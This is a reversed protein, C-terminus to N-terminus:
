EGIESIFCLARSDEGLGLAERMAPDAAALALGALGAGGSPTTSVGQGALLEVAAAAQDDSVTMFADSDHALVGLAVLSPEKCDLRGQTSVPGQVTVVQGAKTSELLCPAADPEVTVIKVQGGWVQRHYRAVAAALGGVGAQLLVHSPPGVLDEIQWVSEEAMVGYGQMITSPVETYGPWSSDSILVWGNAECDRSAAAMSDEYVEGARTVEAGCDRLRGAFAEPVSAALYVISRAGFWRAGTAVSLGHNGASACAFTIEAALAKMEDSLLEKAAVPRGLSKELHAKIHLAVAYAGGLAKFSGLDMRGTEDKISLGALGLDTALAPLDRLPTEGHQSVDRWFTRVSAPEMTFPALDSLSDLGSGKHPNFWFTM